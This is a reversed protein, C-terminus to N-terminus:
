RALERRTFLLLDVGPRLPYNGALNLGSHVQQYRDGFNKIVEDEQGQTAIIIPENSAVMRGFYGVRSYDRLYWPLPWYDPAVITIGTQYGNHTRQAIRNIEDLLRLTERRTHAYVYVYYRNDNDYNRFNLDFTQYGPVFTKWHLEGQTLARVSGPLISLCLILVGAVAALRARKELQWERLERYLWEMAAGSSLALPVVFNLSLWPTKYKILSYATILGFAWAGSFLAFKGTPKILSVLAGLTGLLLLPSEQLLLWWFYTVFPHVHDKSGTKTWYQFTRYSDGVGKWNAFFSSYFIVNIAIFLVVALFVLIALKSPSGLRESLSFQGAQRRQKKTRPPNDTPMLLRWYIRTVLYALLVVIVSIIATEKTAFLLAASAAAAFLYGPSAHEYFKLAAVVMALTFFVFHTEHIFYRSLYVAGPSIALLFAAALTGITGLNRRLSFVLWVTAVGFIAPISRIAFTTLGYNNQAQVGFILRLVRPFLAAFYYLTPGHYNAPDYHYRGERVLRNLFNGNVGEDHHLPVLDLDYFRLFAAIALIAIMAILWTYRSLDQTDTSAAMQEPTRIVPSAAHERNNKRSKTSATGM